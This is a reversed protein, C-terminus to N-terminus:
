GVHPIKKAFQKAEEFERDLDAGTMFSRDLPDLLKKPKIPVVDAVGSPESIPQDIGVARRAERIAPSDAEAQFPLLTPEQYNNELMIDLCERKDLGLRSLAKRRERLNKENQKKAAQYEELNKGHLKNSFALCLFRETRADFVYLLGANKLDQRVLVRKDAHEVLDASKFYAGEFAVGKKGVRRPIPNRSLLVDLSREDRIKEPQRKSSLAVDFPSKDGLGRHPSREYVDVWKDFLGQLEAMTFPVEVPPGTKTIKTGWTALERLKQRDAVSHGCYGPTMEQLDRTLTGFFREIFPKAEGEYKPLLPTEIGLGTTVAEIHLSQYDKGNDMKLRSPVGWNLLALRMCAAIATARSTPAVLIVARRSYVDIIGIICCRKEDATIVDAPTSDIEWTHCFYDIGATADGYAPMMTNKWLRPDEIFAARQPNDQKWREIFRYLTKKSPCRSDFIKKALKWLHSVRIEPTKAIQGLAFLRLEPTIARSRGRQGGYGPLLGVLGDKKFSARWREITPVSLSPQSDYVWAPIDVIMKANYANSFSADAQGHKLKKEKKFINRSKLVLNRAEAQRKNRESASDWLYMNFKIRDEDIPRSPILESRCRHAKVVLRQQIDSPLSNFPYLHKRGGGQENSAKQIPWNEVRARRLVSRKTIGLAKAIEKATILKDM